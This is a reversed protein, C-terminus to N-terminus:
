RNEYTLLKQYPLTKGYKKMKKTIYALIRKQTDQDSVEHWCIPELEVGTKTFLIRVEAFPSELYSCILCNHEIRLSLKATGYKYRTVFQDSSQASKYAETGNYVFSHGDDFFQCVRNTECFRYVASRSRVEILDIMGIGALKVMHCFTNDPLIGTHRHVMAHIHDRIESLSMYFWDSRYISVKVRQQSLYFGPVGNGKFGSEINVLVDYPFLSRLFTAQAQMVAKRIFPHGALYDKPNKCYAVSDFYVDENFNTTLPNIQEIILSLLPNHSDIQGGNMPDPLFLETDAEAIRTILNDSIVLTHKFISKYLDAVAPSQFIMNVCQGFPSGGSLFVDPREYQAQSKTSIPM